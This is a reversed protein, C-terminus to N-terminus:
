YLRQNKDHYILEQKILTNIESCNQLEHRIIEYKYYLNREVNPAYESATVNTSQSLLNIYSQELRQSLVNM